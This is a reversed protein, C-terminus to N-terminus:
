GINKTDNMKPILDSVIWLYSHTELTNPKGYNEELLSKVEELIDLLASYDTWSSPRKSLSCKYYSALPEFKSIRIPIYQEPDLLFSLYAFIQSSLGINNDNHFKILSDYRISFEEKSNNGGKFWNFSNREWVM